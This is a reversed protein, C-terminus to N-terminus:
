CEMVNLWLVIVIHEGGVSMTLYEHVNSPVTIWSGTQEYQSGQYHHVRWLM